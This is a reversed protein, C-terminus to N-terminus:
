AACPLAEAPLGAFLRRLHVDLYSKASRGHGAWENFPRSWYQWAGGPDSLGRGHAEHVGGWPAPSGDPRLPLLRPSVFPGSPPTRPHDVPQLAIRVPAGDMPGIDVVYTFIVFDSQREVSYGLEILEAAFGDPGVGTM